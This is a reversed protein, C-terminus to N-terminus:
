RRLSKRYEKLTKYGQAKAIEREPPSALVKGSYEFSNAFPVMHAVRDKISDKTINFGDEVWHKDIEIEVIWKFRKM